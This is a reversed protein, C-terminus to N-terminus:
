GVLGAAAQEVSGYVPILEDARTLALVRAVPGQPHVLGLAGGHRALERHGHLLVKLASSDMFELQSMDVILRGPSAAIETDLTYRLQHNNTADLEGTLALLTYPAGSSESSVVSANVLSM